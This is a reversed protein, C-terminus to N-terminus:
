FYFPITFNNKVRPSELNSPFVFLLNAATLATHAGVTLIVKQALSLLEM